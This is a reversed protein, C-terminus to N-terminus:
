IKLYNRNYPKLNVTVDTFGYVTLKTVATVTRTPMDWVYSYIKEVAQGILCPGSYTQYFESIHM